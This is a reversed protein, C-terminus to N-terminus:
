CGRATSTASRSIASRRLGSAPGYSIILVARYKLGPGLAAALIEAIDELSLVVPQRRPQCSFQMYKHMEERKYTTGFLFRLAMIRANFTSPTVGTKTM